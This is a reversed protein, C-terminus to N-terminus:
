GYLGRMAGDGHLRWAINYFLDSLPTFLWHYCFDDGSEVNSGYREQKAFFFSSLKGAMIALVNRM